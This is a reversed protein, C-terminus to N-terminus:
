ISATRLVRALILKLGNNSWKDIKIELQGIQTDTFDKRRSLDKFISSLKSMYSLWTHIIDSNNALMKPLLEALSKEIQTAWADNFKIDGVTGDKIMPLVYSGPDEESGFAITNV